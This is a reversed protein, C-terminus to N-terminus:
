KCINNLMARLYTTTRKGSAPRKSVRDQLTPSPPVMPTQQPCPKNRLRETERRMEEMRLQLGNLERELREKESQLLNREGVARNLAEQLESQVRAGSGQQVGPLRSDGASLQSVLVELLNLRAKLGEVEPGGIQPCSSEVPSPVTFTYHCRGGRDNGRWLTARDQAEGRMLLGCLCFSLLAFM